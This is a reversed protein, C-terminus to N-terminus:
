FNILVKRLRLVILKSFLSIHFMSDISALIDTKNSEDCSQSDGSSKVSFIGRLIFRDEGEPQMEIGYNLLWDVM